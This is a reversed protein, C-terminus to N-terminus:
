NIAFWAFQTLAAPLPDGAVPDHVHSRPRASRVDHRDGSARRKSCSSGAPGPPTSASPGMRGPVPRRPHGSWHFAAKVDSRGNYGRFTLPEGYPIAELAYRLQEIVDRHYFELWEKPGHDSIETKLLRAGNPRMGHKRDRTAPTM